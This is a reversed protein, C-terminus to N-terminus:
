KFHFDKSVQGKQDVSHMRLDWRRRWARSSTESVSAPAGSPRRSCSTPWRLSTRSCSPCWVCSRVPRPRRNQLITFASIRRATASSTVCCGSFCCFCLCLILLLLSIFLTMKSMMLCSHNCRQASCVSHCFIDLLGLRDLELGQTFMVASM